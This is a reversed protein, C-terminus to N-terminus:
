GVRDDVEFPATAARLTPPTVLSAENSGAIVLPPDYMMHGTSGGMSACGALRGVAGAMVIAAVVGRKSWTGNM